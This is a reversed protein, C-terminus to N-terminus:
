PPQYDGYKRKPHEPKSAFIDFFSTKARYNGHSAPNQTRVRYNPHAPIPLPIAYISCPTSGSAGLLQATHLLSGIRLLPPMWSDRHVLNRNCADATQNSRNPDDQDSHEAERDRLPEKYTGYNQANRDHANEPQIPLQLRSGLYFLNLKINPALQSL